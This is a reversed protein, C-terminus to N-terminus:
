DVTRGEPVAEDVKTKQKNIVLGDCEDEREIHRNISGNKVLKM